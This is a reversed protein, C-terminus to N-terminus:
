DGGVDPCDSNKSWGKVERVLHHCENSLAIWDTLSLNEARAQPNINLHELCDDLRDSGIVGKLNNRLMKRRNAFGMQILRELHLPDAAMASFVRPRLSVIASDVQPPPDFASAPVVAIVDCSALYQVRVSLAGYAKTGPQASLREAVEKQVLLVISTFPPTVPHVISGLLTELIPGTINYPINAVVKNPHQFQPFLELQQQWDLALFDGQLLLFRNHKAFKKALQECLDRDIEVAVVSEVIALLRQTLVGTGPGIELVRDSPNLEAAAIIQALAKDSRLWHQGFRKRPRVAM